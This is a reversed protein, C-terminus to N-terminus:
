PTSSSWPLCPIRFTPPLKQNSIPSSNKSPRQQPAVQERPHIQATSHHNSPRTESKSTHHSHRSHPHSSSTKFRHRTTHHHPTPFNRRLHPFHPPRPVTVPPFGTSHRRLLPPQAPRTTESPHTSHLPPSSAPLCAPPLSFTTTLTSPFVRPHLPPSPSAPSRLKGTSLQALTSAPLLVVVPRRSHSEPLLPPQTTASPDHIHSATTTLNPHMKVSGDM